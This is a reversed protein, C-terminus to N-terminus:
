ANPLADALESLLRDGLGTLRLVLGERDGEPSRVSEAFLLEAQMRLERSRSPTHGDQIIAVANWKERISRATGYPVVVYAQDGAL